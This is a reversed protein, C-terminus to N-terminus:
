FFINHLELDFIYEYINEKVQNASHGISDMSNYRYTTYVKYSHPNSGM